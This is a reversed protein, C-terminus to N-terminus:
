DAVRLDAIALQGSPLRPASSPAAIADSFAWSSDTSYLPLSANDADLITEIEQILGCQADADPTAKVEAILADVDPNSYAPKNTGVAASDYVQTIMVGPNPVPLGEGALMMEPITSWDTLSTLYDAYAIPELTLEVGIEALNSQLLTAEQVQEEFAPQYSLTLTLDSLGADALIQQAEVLDQHVEPLDAECSLGAPLMTTNLQGAGNRISALGGEYDYALRLAERVAPDATAGTANNLWVIVMSSGVPVVTYGADEVSAIDAASVSTADVTGALLEDRSASLEDIRRLVVTGPRDDAFEFYDDFRAYTITGSDSSELSYPGSGADNNLLWSQANDSGENESVLASNVIYVRSLKSAFLADPAELTITLTADDVAESSSYGAMQGVIGTGITQIRDLTYKADAATFPTGDHFVVDDRMTLTIETADDNYTFDSALSGVLAGTDDYTLLTDYMPSVATDVQLYSSQSPDLTTVENRNSVVITSGAADSGDEAAPAQAACASIVLASTLLLPVSALYRNRSKPM